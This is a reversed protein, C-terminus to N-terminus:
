QVGAATVYIRNSGVGYTASLLAIIEARVRERNGGDCVIGIGEIRPPIKSLLVGSESAGSGVTVYNESSQEGGSGDTRKESDAAYLYAFGGDLSVAVRVEGAGSVCRCLAEIEETLSATYAVLEDPQEGQENKTSSGQGLIRGQSIQSGLLLLGVGVAALVMPLGLRGKGTGRPPAKKNQKEGTNDM